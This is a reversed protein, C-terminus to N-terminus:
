VLEVALLDLSKRCTVRGVVGSLCRGSGGDRGGLVGLRAWQDLSGLDFGWGQDHPEIM